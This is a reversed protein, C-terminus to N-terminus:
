SGKKVNELRQLLPTGVKELWVYYINELRKMSDRAEIEMVDIQRTINSHNLKAVQSVWGLWHDAEIM